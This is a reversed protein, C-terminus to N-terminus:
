VSPPPSAPVACYLGGGDLLYISQYISLNRQPYKREGSESVISVLGRVGGGEHARGRQEGGATNGERQECPRRREHAATHTPPRQDRRSVALRTTCTTTSTTTTTTVFDPSIALSWSFLAHTRSAHAAEGRHSPTHSRATKVCRSTVRRPSDAPPAPPLPLPLPLAPSFTMHSRFRGALFLAPTRSM